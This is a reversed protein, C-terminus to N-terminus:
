CKRPRAFRTRYWRVFGHLGLSQMAARITGKAYLLWLHPPSTSWGPPLHRRRVIHTEHLTKWLSRESQGGWAVKAIPLDLARFRAGSRRARLFFDYDMANKLNTDFGGLKEFLTRRVFTAPHNLTMDRELLAPDSTCVIEGHAELKVIAGCVVDAEDARLVALVQELVGELYTDDAHLHAIWTGRALRVGKNMADSIGRDPESITRLGRGEIARLYDVTGDTSAGDVILHEVGAPLNTQVSDVTRRLAPLVNRCITVVTLLPASM